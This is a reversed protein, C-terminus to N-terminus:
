LRVKRDYSMHKCNNAFHQAEAESELDFADFGGVGSTLSPSANKASKQNRQAKGAMAILTKSSIKTKSRNKTIIKQAELGSAVPSLMKSNYNPTTKSSAPPTDGSGLASLM